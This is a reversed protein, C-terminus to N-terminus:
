KATVLTLSNLTNIAKCSIYLQINVIKQSFLSSVKCFFIEFKQRNRRLKKLTLTKITIVSRKMIGRVTSNDDM